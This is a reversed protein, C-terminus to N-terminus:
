TYYFSDDDAGLPGVRVKMYLEYVGAQPFTINYTVVKTADNPRTAPAIFNTQSRVFQVGGDTATTFDSGLTGSGAQVIVPEGQGFSQLVSFFAFLLFYTFTYKM